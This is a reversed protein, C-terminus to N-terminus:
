PMRVVAVTLSSTNSITCSVEGNSDNFVEPPFPGIMVDGTSAPCTKTPNEITLGRVSAGTVFTFVADTAAAKEALIFTKGDNPFYFTDASNLSGNRTVAVAAGAGGPLTQVAWDVDAM